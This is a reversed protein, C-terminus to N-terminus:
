YRERRKRGANVLINELDNAAQEDCGVKLTTSGWGLSPVRWFDNNIGITGANDAQEGEEVLMRHNEGYIVHIFRYEGNVRAWKYLQTERQNSHDLM